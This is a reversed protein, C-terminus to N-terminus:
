LSWSEASQGDQGVGQFAGTAVIMVEDVVASSFGPM